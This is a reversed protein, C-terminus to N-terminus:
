VNQMFIIKMLLKLLRLCREKISFDEFINGAYHEHM